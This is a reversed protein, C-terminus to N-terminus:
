VTKLRSWALNRKTEMFILRYLMKDIINMRASIMSYGNDLPRIRWKIKLGDFFDILEDEGNTEAVFYTNM